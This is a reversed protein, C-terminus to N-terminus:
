DTKRPESSSTALPAAWRSGYIWLVVGIGAMPLSLLQGMTLWDFAIPGLHADPQRAFEALFRFAAYGVLFAGAVQGAQRPRASFWWLILFLSLGEGAAQYLQSPHRVLDDVHPFVMGWPVDTPRGWLEGGIFNGIRGLGLGVPIAPAILDGVRIFSEARSRAFWWLAGIVGLLGGHFSMGGEWIKFIKLPDASWGALDYFVVYGIRGGLIVGLACANLLDGIMSPALPLDSRAARKKVLWFCLAFAALYTLGYWHVALPGIQIAVPDIQPYTLM